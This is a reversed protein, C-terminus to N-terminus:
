KCRSDLFITSDRSRIFSKGAADDFVLVQSGQAIYLLHSAPDFAMYDYGGTTNLAFTNTVRYAGTQARLAPAISMAALALPLLSCLTM